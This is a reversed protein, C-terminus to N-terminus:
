RCACRLHNRGSRNAFTFREEEDVIGVGEALNELVTRYKEETEHLFEQTRKLETLDQLTTRIGIISGQADHLLRDESVVTVTTRDKRRYIREVGKAPAKSGSLKALVSQRSAEHDDLFEWVLHGQMEDARYGLMRLETENIRIIRGESNLEHYAVPANNFLEKFENENKLLSQELKKREVDLKNLSRGMTWAVFVFIAIYATAALVDGFQPGYLGTMEGGVVVWGLVLPVGVAALILRRAMFGGSGKGRIVAMVGVDPELCIVGVSLLIFTGATHLAMRTYVAYGSFGPIGYIYALLALVGLLGVALALVQGM